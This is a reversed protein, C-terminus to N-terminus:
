SKKGKYVEAIGDIDRIEIGDIGKTAIELQPRSAKSAFYIVGAYHYGFLGTNSGDKSTAILCDKYGKIIRSRDKTKKASLEVEIPIQKKNYTIEGDPFHKGFKDKIGYLRRLKRESTWGIGRSEFHLRIKNVANLHKWLSPEHYGFELDFENIAKNTPYVFTINNEKVVKVYGGRVWRTIINNCTPMSVKEKDILLERKEANRALIYRLHEFSIAMQENIWTLLIRDRESVFITGKDRRVKRESTGLNARKEVTAIGMKKEDKGFDRIEEGLIELLINKTKEGGKM